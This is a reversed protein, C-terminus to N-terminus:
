AAVARRHRRIELATALRRTKTDLLMWWLGDIGQVPTHQVRILTKRHTAAPIVRLGREILDLRVLGTANEKDANCIACAAILNEGGDLASGAGGHGRNARHDATQAEGICNTLALLCYGGDREIVDTKDRRTVTM